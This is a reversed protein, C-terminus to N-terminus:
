ELALFQITEIRANTVRWEWCRARYDLNLLSYASADGVALTQAESMRPAGLDVYQWRHAAIQAVPYKLRAAGAVIEVLETHETTVEARPGIVTASDGTHALEVPRFPSPYARVTYRHPDADDAIAEVQIAPATDAEDGSTVVFRNAIQPADIQASYSYLVDDSLHWAPARAYDPVAVVSAPRAVLSGDLLSELRGGVAGVISQALGLPTDELEAASDPLPWDPIQWDIAQELLRECVARAM